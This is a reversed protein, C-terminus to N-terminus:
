ECDDEARIGTSGFGGAGRKTEDLTETKILNFRDRICMESGM